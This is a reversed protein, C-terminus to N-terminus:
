RKKTLVKRPQNRDPEIETLRIEVAGGNEIEEISNDTFLADLGKGLGGKKLM